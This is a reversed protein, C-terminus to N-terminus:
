LLDEPEIICWGFAGTSFVVRCRGYSKVDIGVVFGICEPEVGGNSCNMRMDSFIRTWTTVAVLDGMYVFRPSVTM